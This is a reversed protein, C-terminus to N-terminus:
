LYCQGIARVEPDLKAASKIKSLPFALHAPADKARDKPADLTRLGEDYPLDEDAPLYTDYTM